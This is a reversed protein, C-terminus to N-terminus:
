KAWYNVKGQQGRTNKMKLMIFFFIFLSDDQRMMNQPYKNMMHKWHVSVLSQIGLQTPARPTHAHTYNHPLRHTHTHTEVNWDSKWRQKLRFRVVYPRWFLGKKIKEGDRRERFASPHHRNRVGSTHLSLHWLSQYLPFSFSLYRRVLNGVATISFPPLPWACRNPPSSFYTVLNVSVPIVLM